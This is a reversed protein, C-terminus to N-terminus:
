RIRIRSVLRSTVRGNGFYRYQWTERYTRFGRRVIRTRTVIRVRRNGQWIRQPAANFEVASGVNEEAAMTKAEASPVFM